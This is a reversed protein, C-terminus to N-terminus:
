PVTQELLIVQDGPSARLRQGTKQHYLGAVLRYEGPSLAPPIALTLEDAIIEGPLWGTTPALGQQPLADVQAVIRGAEDTLHLFIKYSESMERLAQWQLKIKLAQGAKFASIDFGLLRITEDFDIKLQHSLAPAEFLRARAEVAIPALLQEALSATTQLDVLRLALMYDNSALHAPLLVPYNVRYVAGAPWATTPYGAILPQPQRFLPVPDSDPVALALILGFDNSLPEAAQWWLTVRLPDGPRNAPGASSELGILDLGGPLHAALPRTIPLSALDVVGPNPRLEIEALPLSLDAQGGVPPLPAGSGAQYAVVRLRYPGPPADPPIPLVAYLNSEAGAPWHRTTLYDGASLLPKDVSALEYDHRDYLTLRVNYDVEQLDSKLWRLAVGLSQGAAPNTPQLRWGTLRFAEGFAVDAPEFRAEVPENPRLQYTIVRYDPLTQRSIIDGQSALVYEFYGKPDVAIRDSMMLKVVAAKGDLLNALTQNLSAEDMVPFAVEAQGEYLYRVTFLEPRTTYSVNPRIPFIFLTDDQGEAEMWEVMRVPAQAFLTPIVGSNAWQHFYLWYSFGASILVVGGVLAPFTAMGSAPRWKKLWQGAGVLALAPFIFSVPQAGVGRRWVEFVFGASAAGSLIAPAIMVAWWILLFLYAPKRWHRLAILLGVVFLVTILPDFALDDFKGQVLWNPWLGFTSLTNLGGQIMPSGESLESNHVVQLPRNLVAIPNLAFYILIPAAVGLMVAFPLWGVTFSPLQFAPSRQEDNLLHHFLRNLGLFLAPVMPVLYGPLYGYFFLGMVAGAAVLYSRRGTNLGRWFYYFALSAMLAVLSWNPTAIRGLGLIWTSVAFLLAASAALWRQVAVHQLKFPLQRALLYLLAATALNVLGNLVRLGLLNKSFLAIWGTELWVGLSGGSRQIPYVLQLGNKLSAVADAAVESEDSWPYLPPIEGIKFFLALSGALIILLIFWFDLREHRM